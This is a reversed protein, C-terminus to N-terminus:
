VIPVMLVPVASLAVIRRAVDGRSPDQPWGVAILEADAAEAASLVETAPDGVRLELRMQPAGILHRAFFEQAYAETEHQIQDSFSPISEEDEVHVVVIELGARASIAVSRQLARAKAPTGEMALVVTRLRDPVLVGPPVVLVPKDTRDALAMALHGPAQQHVSTTHAGLIIAVVDSEQAASALGEVPDGYHALSPRGGVETTPQTLDGEEPLFQIELSADLAYAVAQAMGIVSQSATVHDVAAIVRSM